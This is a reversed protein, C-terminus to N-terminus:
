LSYRCKDIRKFRDIIHNQSSTCSCDFKSERHNGIFIFVNCFNRTRQDCARINSIKILNRQFGSINLDFNGININRNRKRRCEFALNDTTFIHLNLEVTGTHITCFKHLCSAHILYLVVLNCNYSWIYIFHFQSALIRDSVHYFYRSLSHLRIKFRYNLTFEVIVNVTNLSNIMCSLSIHLSDTDTLFSVICSETDSMDTLNQICLYFILKFSYNIFTLYGNISIRSLTCSDTM